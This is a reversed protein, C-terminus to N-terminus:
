EDDKDKLTKFVYPVGGYMDWLAKDKAYARKEKLWEQYTIPERPHLIADRRKQELVQVIRRYDTNEDVVPEFWSPEKPQPKYPLDSMKVTVVEKGTGGSYCQFDIITDGDGKVVKMWNPINEVDVAIFRIVTITELVDINVDTEKTPSGFLFTM